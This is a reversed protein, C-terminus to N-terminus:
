LLDEEEDNGGDRKVSQEQGDHASPQQRFGRAQGEGVEEHQRCDAM